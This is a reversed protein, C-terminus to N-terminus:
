QCGTWPPLHFIATGQEISIRQRVDRDDRDDPQIFNQWPLEPLGAVKSRLYAHTQALKRLHKNSTPITLGIDDTSIEGAELRAEARECIGGLTTEPLRDAPSKGINAPLRDLWADFTKIDDYTARWFPTGAPLAREFLFAAWRIQRSTQEGVQETARKGSQRHEFMRPNEAILREAVQTPSMERWPMPVQDAQLIQLAPPTPFPASAQAPIIPAFAPAAISVTGDGLLLDFNVDERCSKAGLARAKLLIRVAMGLNADTAEFGLEGLIRRAHRQFDSGLQPFLRSLLCLDAKERDALVDFHEEAYAAPIPAVIGTNAYASWM